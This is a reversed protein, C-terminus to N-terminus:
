VGARTLTTRLCAFLAFPAVHWGLYSRGIGQGGVKRAKPYSEWARCAPSWAAHFHFDVARVSGRGGLRLIARAPFVRCKGSENDATPFGRRRTGYIERIDRIRHM